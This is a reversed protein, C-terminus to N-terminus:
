LRFHYLSDMRTHAMGHYSIFFTDSTNAIGTNKPSAPVPERPRASSRRPM